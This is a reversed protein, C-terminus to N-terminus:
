QIFGDIQEECSERFDELVKVAELIRKVDEVDECIEEPRLYGGMTLDYYFDSTSIELNSKLKM